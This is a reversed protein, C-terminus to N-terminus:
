LTLGPTSRRHTNRHPRRTPAAPIHVVPRQTTDRAPAPNLADQTPPHATYPPLAFLGSHNPMAPPNPPPYMFGPRPKSPKMSPALNTMPLGALPDLGNENHFLKPGRPGPHRIRRQPPETRPHPNPHELLSPPYGFGPRPKSPKMSPALNTMPLGALPDLGNENHFLRPDQPGPHRIRRQSPETRPHPNQHEFLSPPDFQPARMMDDPWPQLLGGGYPPPPEFAVVRHLGHRAQPLDVKTQKHRHVLLEERTLNPNDAILKDITRKEAQNVAQEDANHVQDHTPCSGLGQGFHNYQVRTIDQRCIYCMVHSCKSCIMKNCGSEKVINVKCNPCQRILAESMAEEVLRREPIGKEKAAEACTQPIHSNAKCLRCSVEECAPNQCRFERDVEVPACVAKFECFPCSELGKLGARRVEDEQQLSDLKKTLSPGIVDELTSRAFGAECGSTDICQVQYKMLGIQTKVNKRICGFCFFHITTGECHIARNLPVDLYCCQCEVLNKTRIHEEENRREAIEEKERKRFADADRRSRNQAAQLEKLFGDSIEPPIGVGKLLDNAHDDVKRGRVLRTYPRNRSTTSQEFSSLEVYVSFFSRGTKMTHRLYPLPVFPFTRMLIESAIAIYTRDHHQEREWRTDDQISSAEPAEKKHKQQKPYNSEELIREIVRAKLSSKNEHNSNTMAEQLLAAVHTLKIDPFIELIQSLLRNEDQLASDAQNKSNPIGDQISDQTLDVTQAVINDFTGFISWTADSGPAQQKTSTPTNQSPHHIQHDIHEFTEQKTPTPYDNSYHTQHDFHGDLGLGYRPHDLGASWIDSNGGMILDLYEQGLLDFHRSFYDDIDMIIVRTPKTVVEFSTGADINVEHISIRLITEAKRM